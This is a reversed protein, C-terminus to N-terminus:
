NTSREIHFLSSLEKSSHDKEFIRATPKDNNANSRIEEHIVQALDSKSCFLNRIDNYMRIAM